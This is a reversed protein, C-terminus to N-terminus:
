FDFEVIYTLHQPSSLGSVKYTTLAEKLASMRDQHAQAEEPSTGATPAGSWRWHIGYSQAGRQATQSQLLVATLRHNWYFLFERMSPDEPNYGRELLYSARDRDLTWTLGALAFAYRQSLAKLDFQDIDAPTVREKTYPMPLRQDPWAM